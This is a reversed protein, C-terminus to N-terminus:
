GVVGSGFWCGLWGLCLGFVVGSGMLVFRRCLCWGSVVVVLVVVGM